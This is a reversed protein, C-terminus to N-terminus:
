PTSHHLTLAFGLGRTQLDLSAQAKNGDTWKVAFLGLGATTIALAGTLGLLVNTRLQAAQGDQQTTANPHAAFLTHQHLTDAGSAITAGLGITTVGIGVWFWIPEIGGGKGSNEVPPSSTPSVTPTPSSVGNSSARSPGTVEVSEGAGVPITSRGSPEWEIAHPGPMVWAVSRAPEGDVRARCPGDPCTLVIRGVRKAFKDRAEKVLTGLDAGEQTAREVLRMGLVPDDIKLAAQIAYKLAVPNPALEDAVTFERAALAYKGADYARAGRDYAARAMAVDPDAARAEVPAVLAAAVLAALVLTRRASGNV